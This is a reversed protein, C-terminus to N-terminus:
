FATDTSQYEVTIANDTGNHLVTFPLSITTLDSISAVPTTGTFKCVPLTVHFFPYYSGEIATGQTCILELKFTTGNVFNNYQTLDEFEAEITGTYSPVSSRKPQGKTANGKLFRRSTSMGLDGDLSFSTFSSVASDNLEIVADTWIFPTASAPYAATASGTSTQETEADFDISMTLPSGVEQTINFGTATCGEYTFPRLTGGSDARNAQITYSGAPGIDNTSFTSKYAASSSQQTPGSSTGLLHQMILGHGKNLVAMEISGTAGLSVTDHRDSRITQMDARFGVSEIYEVERTFTDATAEYSRTPTVATGFSSEVGVSIHQDTIASM